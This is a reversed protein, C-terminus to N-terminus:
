RPAISSTDVLGSSGSRAGTTGGSLPPTSPTTLVPTTSSSPPTTTTSPRPPTTTSSPAPSSTTPEVSSFVPSTFTISTVPPPSSPTPAASSLESLLNDHQTHLASHGDEVAVSSLAVEARALANKADAVRGAQLASTATRLDQKVLAAAEVSRAHDSYLIRTVGWLADGPQAANAALGVAAFAIALVAAASAIPVLPRFKRVSRRATEIASVATDSDILEGFFEADVDRRWALLLANLEDEVLPGSVAPDAGGLADLLADDALIASFEGLPDDAM